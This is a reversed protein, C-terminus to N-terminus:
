KVILVNIVRCGVTQNILDKLEERRLFIENRAVSSAIHVYMVGKEVRIATTRSAVAPGVIDAWVESVRAEALHRRAAPNSQIFEAWLDGFSMPTTKRMPPM